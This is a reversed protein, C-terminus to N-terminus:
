LYGGSESDGLRYSIRDAAAKVLPALETRLADPDHRDKRTSVSISAVVEHARDFIPAAVCCVDVRREELDIAYGQERTAELALRLTEADRISRATYPRWGYREITAVVEEFPLQAYMAKGLSTCHAVARRGFETYVYPVDPPAMSVIHVVDGHSLVAVNTLLRTERRLLAAEPIAHSRVDIGSLAVSALEVVGLGLRYGSEGKVPEVIGAAVLASLHRFVTSQHQGSFKALEQLRLVPRQESFASLLALARGITQAGAIPHEDRV